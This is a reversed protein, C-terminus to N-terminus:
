VMHRKSFGYCIYKNIKFCDYMKFGIYYTLLAFLLIIIFIGIKNM